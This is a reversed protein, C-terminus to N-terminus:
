FGSNMRTPKLFTSDLESAAEDSGSICDPELLEKTQQRHAQGSAVNRPRGKRSEMFPTFFGSIIKSRTAQGLSLFGTDRNGCTWTSQSTSRITADLTGSKHVSENCRALCSGTSNGLIVTVM